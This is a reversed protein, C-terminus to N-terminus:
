KMEQRNGRGGIQVQTKKDGGSRTAKNKQYTTVVALFLSVGFAIQLHTIEIGYNELFKPVGFGWGLGSLITVIASLIQIFNVAIGM